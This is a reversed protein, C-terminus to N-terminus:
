TGWGDDLLFAKRRMSEGFPIKAWDEKGTARAVAAPLQPPQYSADEADVLDEANESHFSGFGKYGYSSTVLSRGECRYLPLEAHQSPRRRARSLTRIGRM